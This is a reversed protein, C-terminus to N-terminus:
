LEKMTIYRVLQFFLCCYQHDRDSSEVTEQLLVMWYIVIYSIYHCLSQEQWQAHVPLAISHRAYLVWKWNQAIQDEYLCVLLMAIDM